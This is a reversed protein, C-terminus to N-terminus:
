SSNDRNLVAGYQSGLAPVLLKDHLYRQDPDWDIDFWGAYDSAQGWELVDLWLPQRFM